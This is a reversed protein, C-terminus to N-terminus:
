LTESVETIKSCTGGAIREAFADVDDPGLSESRTLVNMGDKYFKEMSRTFNYINFTYRQGVKFGQVSFYFWYTNGRTNSDVKLLLNYSLPNMIYASDLNGGEFNQDFRLISKQDIEHPLVTDINRELYELIHPPTKASSLVDGGICEQSKTLFELYDRTQAL